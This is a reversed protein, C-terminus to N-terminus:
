RVPHQMALIMIVELLVAVKMYRTRSVHLIKIKASFGMTPVHM